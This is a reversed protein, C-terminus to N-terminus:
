IGRFNYQGAQCCYLSAYERNAELLAEHTGQEVLEGEKLVLIRDAM